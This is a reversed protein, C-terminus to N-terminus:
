GVTLQELWREWEELSQTGYFGKLVIVGNGDIGFKTSRIVVEYSEIVEPHVAAMPWPFDNREKYQRLYNESEFADTGVALM